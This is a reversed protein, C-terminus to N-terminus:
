RNMLVNCSLVFLDAHFGICAGATINEMQMKIIIMWQCLPKTLRMHGGTCM